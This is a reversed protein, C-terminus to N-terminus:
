DYGNATVPCLLQDSKKLSTEQWQNYVMPTQSYQTGLTFRLTYLYCEMMSPLTVRYETPGGITYPLM